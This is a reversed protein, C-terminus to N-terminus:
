SMSKGNKESAPEEQLLGGDLVQFQGPIGPQHKAPQDAAFPDNDVSVL